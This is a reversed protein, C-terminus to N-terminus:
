KDRIKANWGMGPLAEVILSDTSLAFNVMIETIDKILKPLRNQPVEDSEKSEIQLLYNMAM